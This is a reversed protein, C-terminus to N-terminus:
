KVIIIKSPPPGRLHLRDQNGWKKAPSRGVLVQNASLLTEVIDYAYDDIHYGDEYRDDHYDVSESLCLNSVIIMIILSTTMHNAVMMIMMMSIIMSIVNMMMMMMMMITFIRLCVSSPRSEPKM